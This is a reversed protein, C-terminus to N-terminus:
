DSNMMDEIPALSGVGSYSFSGWFMKKPPQKVAENFHALSLREGKIIRVFQSHKGQVFFHSENTFLVKKWDEITWNKHAKAWHLRKKKMKKTLLHKKLPKKAKKGAELLRRRVTSSSICVGASALDMQLDFNTKRPDKKSNRLFILDDKPTTTRKRGCKGKRRPTVSGTVDQHKIIRPVSKQSVGVINAIATQTYNCHESFTLICNRKRPTIDAM